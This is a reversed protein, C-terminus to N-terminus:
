DEYDVEAWSILLELVKERRLSRQLLVLLSSDQKLNELPKNYSRALEKLREQVEEEKVEIGERVAIEELLLSTKVERQAIKRYEERMGREEEPSLERHQSAARVKAEQLLEQVRQQVQYSPAEIPNNQLLQEVVEQRLEEKLQRQKAEQLDAKIKQRLEELSKYDGVDKAFEDDLPPLVRERIEKVEIRFTVEKGALDKRHHDSPINVKIEEKAGVRKGILGEEFGPVMTGSGVELLYNEEKGERIPRKDIFGQFDLLVVDGYKVRNRGQVQRLHAYLGRIRELEEEVEEPTVEERRGRLRLGKYGRVEIRPRVEVVASYSFPREPAVDGADILPPAIPEISEQSIAKPYTENILYSIAKEKVYDGYYRELIDRPIKGPRFGKIKARKKLDRYLSEVVEKVQPPPIEIQLRKKTPGLEESNVKM